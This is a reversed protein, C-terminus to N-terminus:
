EIGQSVHRATNMLKLSNLLIGFNRAGRETSSRASVAWFVISIAFFKWFWCKMGQPAPLQTLLSFLHSKISEFPHAGSKSSSRLSQGILHRSDTVHRIIYWSALDAQSNQSSTCHSFVSLNVSRIHLIWSVWHSPQTKRNAVFRAALVLVTKDYKERSVNEFLEYIHTSLALKYLQLTESPCM